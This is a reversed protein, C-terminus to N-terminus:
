KEVEAEYGMKQTLDHLSKDHQEQSIANRKLFMDLTDKQRLFLIKNKEEYCLASWTTDNLDVKM